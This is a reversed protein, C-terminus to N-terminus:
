WRETTKQHWRRGRATLLLTPARYQRRPAPRYFLLRLPICRWAEM